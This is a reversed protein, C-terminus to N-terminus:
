IRAGGYCNYKRCLYYKSFGTWQLSDLELNKYIYDPLLEDWKVELLSEGKKFVPRMTHIGDLFVETDNSSMLNGDFTVRVNGVPNIFPKREYVVIVKPIMSKIRMETFLYKMMDPMDWTVAPIKGVMFQRCQRESIRCSEKRTMGDLKSKKELRIFSIDEDYYRIRYKSRRDYGDENEYFCEDHYNDFYLSKIMYSGEKGAHSDPRLVAKARALLVAEEDAEIRYKYEHRYMMSM